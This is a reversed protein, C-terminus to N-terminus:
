VPDFNRVLRRMTDVVAKQGRANIASEDWRGIDQGGRDWSDIWCDVRLKRYDTDYYFEARSKHFPSDGVLYRLTDVDEDDGLVESMENFYQTVRDFDPSFGFQLSPERERSYRSRKRRGLVLGYINREDKLIAGKELDMGLTIEGPPYTSQNEWLDVEMSGIQKVLIAKRDKLLWGEVEQYVRGLFQEARLIEPTESPTREASM